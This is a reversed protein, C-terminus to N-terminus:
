WLSTASCRATMGRTALANQIDQVKVELKLVDGVIVSLFKGGSTEELLLTPYACMQSINVSSSIMQINCLNQDFCSGKAKM